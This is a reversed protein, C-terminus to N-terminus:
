PTVEAPRPDTPPEDPMGPLPEDRWGADLQMKGIVNGITGPEGPDMGEAVVVVEVLSAAALDAPQAVMVPDGNPLTGHVIVNPGEATITPNSIPIVANADPLFVDVVVEASRDATLLERVQGRVGAAIAAKAQEDALEAVSEEWIGDITGEDGGPADGKASYQDRGDTGDLWLQLWEPEGQGFTRRRLSLCGLQPDWTVQDFTLGSLLAQVAGLPDNADLLELIRQQVPPLFMSKGARMPYHAPDFYGQDTELILRDLERRTWWTQHERPTTSTVVLWPCDCEENYRHTLRAEDASIVEGNVDKPDTKEHRGTPCGPGRWPEYQKM